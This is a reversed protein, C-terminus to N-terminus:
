SPMRWIVARAGFRRRAREDLKDRELAAGALRLKVEPLEPTWAALTALQRAQSEEQSAEGVPARLETWLLGGLLAYFAAWKAVHRVAPVRLRRWPSLSVDIDLNASTESERVKWIFGDFYFHLLTSTTLLGVLIKQFDDSQVQAGFFRLGGFAAIAALYL